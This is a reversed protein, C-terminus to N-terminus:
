KKPEGETTSPRQEHAARVALAILGMAALVGGLVALALRPNGTERVLWGVLQPGVFGGLNGVANIIAIGGAAATGSLFATGLAWFPGMTSKLGAFALVLAAMALVPGAAAASIWFGAAGALAAAAVHLRREGLRDSSRGVLAMAVAAAFYPVANLLGLLGFGAQSLDKLISPIWLEFGYGGVNLLFYLLALLWLRGSTLADVLRHRARRGTDAEDQRLRAALWAKEEATMWRASEPGRPLFALVAVGLAVAPLGELLFLWQWGKLGLTGDLQMLAGSLPSGVVGALASATAFLAVTRARQASPYWCTLYYIIGPFFGAEAVGLLFRMAYFQAPTRVLMMGASVVGWVVMIRAIWLRAGIRALVLNSPLEFLFYGLFFIGAGLGYMASFAGEDVGFTARLQLKAFGVNIRDIYAVIYLLFLFPILRATIRRFLAAENDM